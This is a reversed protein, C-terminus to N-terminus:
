YVHIAKHLEDAINLDFPENPISAADARAKANALFQDIEMRTPNDKLRWNRNDRVDAIPTVVDKVDDTSIKKEYVGRAYRQVTLIAAAKEEATMTSPEIYKQRVAQVGALPILPGTSISQTIRGLQETSVKGTKFDDGLQKVETLIAERQDDPLGSDKIVQQVALSTFDAAWTKWHMAVYIGIGIVCVALVGFIILLVKLVGGRNGSFRNM